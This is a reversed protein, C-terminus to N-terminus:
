PGENSPYGLTTTLWRRVKRCPARDCAAGDEEDYFPASWEALHLSTTTAEAPEDFWRDVVHRQSAGTARKQWPNPEASAPPILRSESAEVPSVSSAGTPVLREVVAGFGLALATALALIVVAGGATTQHHAGFRALRGFRGVTARV